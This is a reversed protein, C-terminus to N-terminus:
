LGSDERRQEQGRTGIIGKELDTIAKAEFPEMRGSLSRRLLPGMAAPQEAARPALQALRNYHELVTEPDYGSIPDDPDSLLGALMAKARIKRMENQHAPDELDLQASEILDGTPRQMRSLASGLMSGTALAIPGAQKEPMLDLISPLGVLMPSTPPTTAEKEAFPRMWGEEASDAAREAEEAQKRLAAVRGALGICAEITPYPERKRDVEHPPMPMESARKEGKLRQSVYDFLPTVASGYYFSAGHEVRHLPMRDRPDQRFYSSLSAVKTTLRDTADSLERRIEEYSRKTRQYGGFAKKVAVSPDPVPAVPPPGTLVPVSARKEIPLCTERLLSFHQKRGAWADPSSRYEDSVSATKVANGQKYISAIVEEANVLPVSALKDLIRDGTEWQATQAGTNYANALFRIRGPTFGRDRAVKELAQTPSLLGEAALDTAQKVADYLETEDKEDLRTM